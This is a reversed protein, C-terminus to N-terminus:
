PRDPRHQHHGSGAGQQTISHFTAQVKGGCAPCRYRETGADIPAGSWPLRELQVGNARWAPHCRGCSLSVFAESRNVPIAPEVHPHGLGGCVAGDYRQASCTFRVRGFRHPALRDGIELPRLSKCGSCWIKLQLGLAPLEGFTAFPMPKLRYRPASPWCSARRPSSPICAPYAATQAQHSKLGRPM